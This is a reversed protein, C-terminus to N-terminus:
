FHKGRLAATLPSTYLVTHPKNNLLHETFWLWRLLTLFTDRPVERTNWPSLSQGKSASPRPKIGPWPVLDWMGCSLTWMSCSFIGRGVVLFFLSRTHRLLVQRPWVLLYIFYTKFWLLSDSMFRLLSRSVTFSLPTQCAVTWPTACFRVHSLLQVAVAQGLNGTDWRRVLECRDEWFRILAGCGTSAGPEPHPERCKVSPYWDLLLNM